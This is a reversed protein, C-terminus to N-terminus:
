YFEIVLKSSRYKISTEEIKVNTRLFNNIISFICGSWREKRWNVGKCALYLQLNESKIILKNRRAILWYEEWKWNQSAFEESLSNLNFVKVVWHKDVLLNPSKLDRHVIPPHSTHLYNMGKAQYSYLLNVNFLPFLSIVYLM